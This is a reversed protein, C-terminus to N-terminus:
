RADGCDRGRTAAWAAQARSSSFAFSADQQMSPTYIGVTRLLVKARQRLLHYVHSRSRLLADLRARVWGLLIGVRVGPSPSVEKHASTADLETGWFGDVPFLIDNLNFALWLDKPKFYGLHRRVMRLEDYITGGGGAMAVVEFRQGVPTGAQNLRDELRKHYTEDLTM